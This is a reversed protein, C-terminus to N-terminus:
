EGGLLEAADIVLQPLTPAFVGLQRLVRTLREYELVVRSAAHAMPAWLDEGDGALKAIQLTEVWLTLSTRVSAVAVDAPAWAARVPALCAALESSSPTHDERPCRTEAEARASESVLQAASTTTLAAAQIARSQVQVASAGCASLLLAACAALALRTVECGRAQEAADM